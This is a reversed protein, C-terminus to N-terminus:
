MECMTVNCGPSTMMVPVVPPTPWARLGARYMWFPSVTSTVMSPRPVTLFLVIMLYSFGVHSEVIEFEGLPQQDGSTTRRVQRLPERFQGIVFEVTGGQEFLPSAPVEDCM